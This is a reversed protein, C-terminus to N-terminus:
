IKKERKNKRKEKIEREEEKGRINEKYKESRM